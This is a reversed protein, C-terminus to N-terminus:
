RDRLAASDALTLSRPRRLEILISGCAYALWDSALFRAALARRWAPIAIDRRIFLTRAPAAIVEYGFERAIHHMTKASYFAVHQGHGFGFFWWDRPPRGDHLATSALVARHRPAFLRALEGRVDVLHEFVEFATVLEHPQSPDGEFGRAFFNQGYKDSWTFHWGADRMMRTFVGCGGGFDLCRGRPDLGLVAGIALTLRATFTNRQIAGTDLSSIASGYAEDLWHPQETQILDCTPCRFYRVDHRSLVRADLFLATDSGCLRCLIM